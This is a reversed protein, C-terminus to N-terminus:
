EAVTVKTTWSKVILALGALTVTGTPVGPVEVIVIAGILPKAPVTLKDTVDLEGFRDHEIRGVEIVPPEPLAVRDHVPM